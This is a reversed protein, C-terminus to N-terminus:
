SLPLPHKRRLLFLSYHLLWTMWMQCLHFLIDFEIEKESFLQSLFYQVLFSSSSLSISYAIKTARRSSLSKCHKSLWRMRELDIRTRTRDWPFFFLSWISFTAIWLSVLLYVHCATNAFYYIPNLCGFWVFLSIAATWLKGRESMNLLIEPSKVCLVLIWVKRFQYDSHMIRIIERERIWIIPWSTQRLVTIVGSSIDFSWFIDLSIYADRKQSSSMCDSWREHCREKINLSRRGVTEARKKRWRM